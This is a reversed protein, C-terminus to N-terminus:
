KDHISITVTKGTRLVLNTLSDVTFKDIRQYIIDASRKPTVMLKEQIQKADLNNDKIWSYLEQFLQKKIELKVIAGEELEDFEEYNNFRNNIWIFCPTLILFVIIILMGVILPKEM